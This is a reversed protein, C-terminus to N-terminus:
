IVNSIALLLLASVSLLSAKEEIPEYVSFTRYGPVNYLTDRVYPWTSALTKWEAPEKTTESKGRTAKM